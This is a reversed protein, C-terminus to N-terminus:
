QCPTEGSPRAATATAASPGGGAGEFLKHPNDTPLASRCKRKEKFRGSRSVKLNRRSGSNPQLNERSSSPSPPAPPPDSPEAPPPTPRPPGPAAAPADKPKKRSTLSKWFPGSSGGKARPGGAPAATAAAAGEAM